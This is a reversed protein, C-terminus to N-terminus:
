AYLQSGMYKKKTKFIAIATMINAFGVITIVISDSRLTKTFLGVILYYPSALYSMGGITYMQVDKWEPVESLVGVVGTIVLYVLVIRIAIKM